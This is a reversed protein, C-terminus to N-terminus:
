LPRKDGGKADQVDEKRVIEDPERWRLIKHKEIANHNQGLYFNTAFMACVLSGFSVILASLFLGDVSELYAPFVNM